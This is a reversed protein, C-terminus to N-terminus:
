HEFREGKYTNYEELIGELVKHSMMNNQILFKILFALSSISIVISNNSSVFFDRGDEQKIVLANLNPIKTVILRSM